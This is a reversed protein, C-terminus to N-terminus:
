RKRWALAGAGVVALVCGLAILGYEELWLQGEQVPTLTIREAVGGVPVVLPELVWLEYGNTGNDASFYLKNNFVTFFYPNSDGGSNIDKFLSVVDGAQASSVFALVLL